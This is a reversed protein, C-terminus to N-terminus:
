FMRAALRYALAVLFLGFFLSLFAVAFESSGALRLWAHLLLYYGPPHIDGATHAVLGPVSQGALYVSVTEDYWLSEVGLRYVRLGFALLLIAILSWNHLAAGKGNAM